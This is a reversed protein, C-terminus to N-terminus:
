EESAQRLIKKEAESLSMLGLRNVKDLIRDIEEQRAQSKAKNIRSKGFVEGFFASLPLNMSNKWFHILMAVSLVMVSAYLYPSWRVIQPYLATTVLLGVIAGGLHADHGINSRQTRAGHFEYVLFLIAYLWSPITFPLLLSGIEGGPLLFISAFVIGCTGGSAGLALYQHHRHLYLSLLSGGTISSFYILLLRGAGYIPELQAGFLLLTTMNFLLHQVDAHLFASTVLRY